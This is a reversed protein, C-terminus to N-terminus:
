GSRLSPDSSAEGKVSGESREPHCRHEPRCSHRMVHHIIGATAADILANAEPKKICDLIDPLLQKGLEVGWQDFPIIDWIASQVFIKHEYLALLAGLSEPTLRDLFLINSPRNGPISQHAEKTNGLLLAQAQSLGSALLVSESQGILIFDVPVLHQGQHLLQHYAHQGNSGEEGFIVPGTAYHIAKGETNVCKGNSEMEAQQIYPVFHRLRYSYPAIAFASVQFFNIYWISLLGLLTPMNHEFDATLFHQDMHNAGALFDRFHNDGIMLMLPLGIASWISYRGGVWDWLPFINDNPIGLARAKEPAATVAIFHHAIATADLKLWQMIERANTLTELTSFSKSSVIFLTAEPDIQELVDQRHSQDITSIFHFQLPSVAFDKLAQTCMMPGLYSGGIGINVVHKIPKGTAGRWQNSHVQSVFRQMKSLADAILPAINKGNVEIPSQKADRLATHLAPRMESANVAEGSFLAHIKNSLGVARALACLRTITEQNIRNRSYDLFLHGTKLSFRSFRDTDQLFWDRMHEKCIDRQHSALAQWEALDTLNKKANNM